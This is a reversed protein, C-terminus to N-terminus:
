ERQSFSGAAAAGFLRVAEVERQTRGAVRPLVEDKDETELLGAFMAITTVNVEQTRLLELVEPHDRIVGDSVCLFRRVARFLRLVRVFATHSQCM